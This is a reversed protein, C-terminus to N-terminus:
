CNTLECFCNYWSLPRLFTLEFTLLTSGFRAFVEFAASLVERGDRPTTLRSGRARQGRLARADASGRSRWPSREAGDASLRPLPESDLSVEFRERRICFFIQANFKSSIKFGPATCFQTFVEMGGEPDDILELIEQHRELLAHTQSVLSRSPLGLFQQQRHSYSLHQSIFIAKLEVCHVM